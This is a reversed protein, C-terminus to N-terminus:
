VYFLPMRKLTVTSKRYIATKVGDALQRQSRRTALIPPPDAGAMSGPGGHAIM